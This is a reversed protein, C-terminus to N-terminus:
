RRGDGVGRDAGADWVLAGDFFAEPFTLTQDLFRQAVSAAQQSELFDRGFCDQMTGVIDDSSIRHGMDTIFSINAQSAGSMDLISLNPSTRLTTCFQDLGSSQRTLTPPAGKEGSKRSAEKQAGFRM